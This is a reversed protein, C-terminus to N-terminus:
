ETVEQFTDLTRKGKGKKKKPADKEIGAMKRWAFIIFWDGSDLPKPIFGIAKIEDKHERWLFWFAKFMPLKPCQRKILEAALVFMDDMTAIKTLDIPPLNNRPAPTNDPDMLGFENKEIPVPISNPLERKISTEEKKIIPALVDCQRRVEAQKAKKSQCKGRTPLLCNACIGTDEWEPLLIGCHRCHTYRTKSISNELPTYPFKVCKRCDSKCQECKATMQTERSQCTKHDCCDLTPIPLPVKLELDFDISTM